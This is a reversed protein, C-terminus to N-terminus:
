SKITKEMGNSDIMKNKLDVLIYKDKIAEYIMVKNINLNHKQSLWHYGLVQKVYKSDICSTCKLEIITDDIIFDALGTIHSVSLNCEVKHAFYRSDINASNLGFKSVIFDLTRRAMEIVKDIFEEEDVLKDYSISPIRRADLNFVSKMQSRYIRIANEVLFVKVGRDYIWQSNNLLEPALRVNRLYYSFDNKVSNNNKCLLDLLEKVTYEVCFGFMSNLKKTKFIHNDNNYFYASAISLIDAYKNSIYVNFKTYKAIKSTVNTDEIWRYLGGDKVIKMDGALMAIEKDSIEKCQLLSLSVSYHNKTTLIKDRNAKKFNEYEIRRKEQMRNNACLHEFSIVPTYCVSYSLTFHVQKYVKMDENLPYEIKLSDMFALAEEESKFRKEKNYYVRYMRGIIELIPLRDFDINESFFTKPGDLEGYECIYPYKNEKKITLKCPSVKNDTLYEIIKDSKEKKLIYEKHRPSQLSLFGNAYGMTTRQDDILESVSYISSIIRHQVEIYEIKSYNKEEYFSNEPTLVNFGTKEDVSVFFEGSEGNSEFVFLGNNLFGKKLRIFINPKLAQVSITDCFNSVLNGNEDEDINMGKVNYFVYCVRTNELLTKNTSSLIDLDNRYLLANRRCRGIIQITTAPNKPENTMYLVHARRIDIGEIIKFKNIIVDYENDDKCIEKMDYDEDTINIVKLHYKKCLGITLSLINEDLIRFIACPNYNAVNKHNEKVEILKKLADEPTGESQIVTRLMMTHNFNCNIDTESNYKPTASVNVIKYTLKELIEMWRNTNIHGEDRFWIIKKCTPIRSIIDEEQLITNKTYDNLGYVIYNNKKVFRKIEFDIQHSLQGKSLTTIVFYFDDSMKSIIDAMMKTKGTGTPSSFNITKIVLSDDLIRSILLNEYENQTENIILMEKKNM